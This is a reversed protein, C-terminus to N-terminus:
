LYFREQLYREPVKGRVVMYGKQTLEANLERIVSYAKGTNINLVEKVEEVGLYKMLQAGKM